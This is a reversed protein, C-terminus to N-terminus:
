QKDALVAKRAKFEDETIEGAAFRRKLVALPDQERDAPSSRRFYFQVVLTALVTMTSILGVSDTLKELPNDDSESWMLADVIVVSWMFAYSGIIVLALVSRTINRLPQKFPSDM